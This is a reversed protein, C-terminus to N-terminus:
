NAYSVTAHLTRCCVLLVFIISIACVFLCRKSSNLLWRRVSLYIIGLLHLFFFFFFIGLDLEVTNARGRTGTGALEQSKVFMVTDFYGGGWGGRVLNGGIGGRGM